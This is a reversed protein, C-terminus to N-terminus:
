KVLDKALIVYTPKAAETTRSRLRKRPPPAEEDYLTYGLREYFTRADVNSTFVTLMTKGIGVELGIQEMARMLTAGIRRGRLQPKLHIEYCYVVELDDEITLMFSLFGLVESAPADLASHVVPSELERVILFKMDKDKMENLKEKSSWGRSSARYGVASTSRVLEFCAELDANSINTSSYFSLTYRPDFKLKPLVARVYRDYFSSAPLQNALSSPSQTPSGDAPQPAASNENGM